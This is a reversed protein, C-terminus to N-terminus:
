QGRPRQYRVNIFIAIACLVLGIGGFIGGLIPLMTTASRQSALYEPRTGGFITRAALEKSELGDMVTGVATVPRGAVLGDYRRTGDRPRDDFGLTAEDYWTEHGREIWYSQNGVMVTGGAELALRPTEHGDSRWSENRDGDTDTTVDLEERIYAVVDRLVVRNRPSIVGEVLAETGVPQDDITAASLTPLSELRALHAKAQRTGFVGVVIATALFTLGIGLLLVTIWRPM